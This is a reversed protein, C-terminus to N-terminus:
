YFIFLNLKSSSKPLLAKQFLNFDFKASTVTHFTSFPVFEQYISFLKKVFKLTAFYVFYQQFFSNFITLSMQFATGSIQSGDNPSKKGIGQQNRALSVELDWISRTSLFNEQYLISIDGFSAGSSLINDIISIYHRLYQFM